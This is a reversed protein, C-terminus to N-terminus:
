ESDSTLSVESDEESSREEPSSEEDESQLSSDEPEEESSSFVEEESTEAESEDFPRSEEKIREFSIFEHSHKHKKPVESDESWLRWKYKGNTYYCLYGDYEEFFEIPYKIYLHNGTISKDQILITLEEPEEEEPVMPTSVYIIVENKGSATLMVYEYKM